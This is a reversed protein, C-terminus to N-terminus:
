RIGGPSARRLTLVGPMYRQARTAQVFDHARVARIRRQEDHHIVVLLPARRGKPAESDPTFVSLAGRRRLVGALANVELQARPEISDIEEVLARQMDPEAGGGAYAWSLSVYHPLLHRVLLEACVVREFDSDVFSQIDDVLPSRDYNVQVNQQSLQVYEEPHDSSGVLLVTRSIEAKVREARSYSLVDNEVHLRFGDSRHGAPEMEVEADINFENGPATSQLEVDAYYLGTADRQANMETSSIRQVYRRIKYQTDEIHGGSFSRIPTWPSTASSITLRHADLRASVIYGGADPHENTRPATDLSLDALAADLPGVDSLEIRQHKGQIRLEGTGLLSAIEAGVQENIYDVVAQRPMDYPFQVRIPPAQDLHLTLHKGGVSVDAPSPLPATGDIPRYLVELIDGPKVHLRFFDVENDTFEFASGGTGTEGTRPLETLPPAPLVTRQNDPDPRYTLRRTAGEAVFTTEQYLFEASTPSLFYVRASGVSPRGIRARVDVSPSFVMPDYLGEGDRLPGNITNIVTYFGFSHAVRATRGSNPGGVVELVDGMRVNLMTAGFELRRISSNSMGISLGLAFLATGGMVTVFDYSGLGVYELGGSQFVYARVLGAFGVSTNIEAALATASIVGSFTHSVDTTPTDWRRGPDHARLDLTLGSVSFSTGEAIGRTVLGVIVRGDFSLAAGENQFARSQALVPDRYPVPTGTPAGGSDVLELGRVRVIPPQIAESRTFLSYRVAGATRSPPPAVRLTVAGVEEVTYDGALEESGELRLVDGAQVNADIFNSSGTTVVVSSGAATVMDAGDLKISKPDTLDVTISSVLRWSLSAQSGVMGQDLSVTVGTISLVQYSGADVGEELVLTWGSEVRAAAEPLLDHLLVTSTASTQANLGRAAPSEDSLGRIQASAQETEGAVYVDTKGGIHVRDHKIELVGDATDPLVIGGPIHTITLKKERLAWSVAPVEVPIEHDLRVRTNSIVEVVRTDKFVLGSMITYTLTLYWHGPDAGASGLRSVFEGTPSNLLPTTADGDLDDEPVGLGSFPGFSDDVPIPGLSGGQIVDRQMEPDRFGVVFMQRLAPFAETLTKRIGREVTLTKDSQSAQARAAFEVSTERPTGGRFRRLNTIRTAAPINAISIIQNAEVNYEDGRNEATYNIDFYYESGEVNLLMQDATIQQPRTPIFRLGSRTTAQNVMTLSVTQPTAFYIRVVGVAYGGSVRAEFFNGMLADVEDDSLSEINALSSRLKILKIERVLPEILVRMPDILTDRLADEETIALEPFVQRIRGLIFTPIDEDFPDPGVRALIPDILDAQARSGDSLDIDPDFRVLLDELFVRTESLSM